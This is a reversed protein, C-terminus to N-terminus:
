FTIPLHIQPFKEGTINKIEQIFLLKQENTLETLSYFSSHEGEEGNSVSRTNELKINNKEAFLKIYNQIAEYYDWRKDRPCCISGYGDAYYYITEGDNFEPKIFNLTIPKRPDDMRISLSDVNYSKNNRKIHYFKNQVYPILHLGPTNREDERLSEYYEWDRTILLIENQGYLFSKREFFLEVPIRNDNNFIIIPEKQVKIPMDILFNSGNTFVKEKEILIVNNIISDKIEFKKEAKKPKVKGFDDPIGITRNDQQANSDCSLLLLLVTLTLLRKM